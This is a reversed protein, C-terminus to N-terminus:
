DVMIYEQSYKSPSTQCYNVGINYKPISENPDKASQHIYSLCLRAQTSHQTINHINLQHHSLLERMCM